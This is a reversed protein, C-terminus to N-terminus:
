ELYFCIEPQYKCLFHVIECSKYIIAANFYISYILPLIQM